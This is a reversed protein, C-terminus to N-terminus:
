VVVQNVVLITLCHELCRDLLAWCDFCSELHLLWQLPGMSHRPFTSCHLQLL